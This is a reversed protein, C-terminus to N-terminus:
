LKRVEVGQLVKTTVSTRNSMADDTDSITMEDYPKEISIQYHASKGMLM